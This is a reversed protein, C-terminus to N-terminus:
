FPVEEKDDKVDKPLDHGSEQKAFAPLSWL